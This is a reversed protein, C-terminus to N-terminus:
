KEAPFRGGIKKKVIQFTQPAQHAAGYYMAASLLGAYYPENLHNMLEPIFQDAPLCGIARYEPPVIVIFGRHPMAVKGHEALRRLAARAAILSLRRAKAFNEITFHYLGQSALDDIYERSSKTTQDQSM